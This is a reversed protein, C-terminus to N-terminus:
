ASTLSSARASILSAVVPRPVTLTASKNWVRRSIGTVVGINFHFCYNGSLNGILQKFSQM